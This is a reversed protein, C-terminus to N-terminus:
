PATITIVQNAGTVQTTGFYITNGTAFDLVTITIGGSEPTLNIVYHDYIYYTGTTNSNNVIAVLLTDDDYEDGGDQILKFRLIVTNSLAADDIPLSSTNIMAADTVKIGTSTNYIKINSRQDVPTDLTQDYAYTATPTGTTDSSSYIKQYITRTYTSGGDTSSDTITTVMSTQLNVNYDYYQMRKILYTNSSIFTPEINTSSGTEHLLTVAEGAYCPPANAAQARTLAVDGGNRDIKFTGKASAKIILCASDAADILVSTTDPDDSVIPIITASNDGSPINEAEPLTYLSVGEPYSYDKETLTFKEYFISRQTKAANAGIDLYMLYSGVAGSVSGLCYEGDNMPMEFYYVHKQFNSDSDNHKKIRSCNFALSYGSPLSNVYQNNSYSSSTDDLWEKNGDADIVKYPKSYFTTNSVPDKLQYVYSYSKNGSSHKYINTIELIRNIVNPNSDLREIKYLAFFSNNATRGSGPVYYTGAIFNIYGFEKLHFDISNVPLEYNTYTHKNVKISKAVTVADLSISAEMFHLGYVNTGDSKIVSALQTKSDTLREYASENTIKERKLSDNITYISSFGGSTSYDNSINNSIPYYGFRVNTLADSYSNTNATIASGGVVYATNSDAPRFDSTNNITALPFYTVDQEEYNMGSKTEKLHEDPGTTSTLSTPDIKYTAALDEEYQEVLGPYDELDREYQALDLNYQNLDEQYIELEEQYEELADQYLDDIADNYNEAATRSTPLAVNSYNTYAYFSLTSANFALYSYANGNGRASRFRYNTRGYINTSTTTLSMTAGNNYTLSLYYTRNNITTYIRVNAYNQWNGTTPLGTYWTNNNSTRYQITWGTAFPITSTEYGGSSTPVLYYTIGNNSYSIQYTSTSYDTLTLSAPRVPEEPETPPTPATPEPPEPPLAILGWSTGNFGLYYNGYTYRIEGNADVSRNWLTGDSANASLRLTTGNYVYLYYNVASNDSNYYYSTTIYGSSGSPISWRTAEDNLDNALNTLTGANSSTGSTFNSVHLYNNGQKIKYGSHPADEYYKDTEWHGGGLLAYRNDTGDNDHIFNFHGIDDNDNKIYTRSGTGTANTTYNQDKVGNHYEYTRKYAWNTSSTITNRITILRKTVSMMDISGGWGTNDGQDTANFEYGSSVNVSYVSEEAKKVSSVRKTYGVLSYDSINNTHGGFSTTDDSGGYAVNLTSSDVAINQMRADVYGAAIGILSDKLITKVTIGTLGTNIFENASSSYASPDSNGYKGIVGFFGLIHPATFSTLTSPHKGLDHDFDNSITLNSVVYGNGNFNGYFPNTENGIPPLIWDTMDVNDGLEFYYPKGNESAKNYTGLYQLWALNYLHRPRTIGFPHEETGEGYAYYAGETAGTIDGTNTLSVSPVFWAISSSVAAVSTLFVLSAALKIRLSRKM